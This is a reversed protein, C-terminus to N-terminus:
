GSYVPSPEPFTEDIHLKDPEDNYTNLLTNHSQEPPKCSREVQFM